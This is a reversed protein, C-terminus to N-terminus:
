INDLGLSRFCSNASYQQLGTFAIESSYVHIYKGEKESLPHFMQLNFPISALAM